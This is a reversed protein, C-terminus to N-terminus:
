EHGWAGTSERTEPPGGADHMATDYERQGIATLPFETDIHVGWLLAGDNCYWETLTDVAEGMREVLRTLTVNSEQSAVLERAMAGLQERLADILIESGTVRKELGRILELNFVAAEEAAQAEAKIEAKRKQEKEFADQYAGGIGM